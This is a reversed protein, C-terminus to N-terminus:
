LWPGLNISQWFHLSIFRAPDLGLYMDQFSTLGPNSDLLTGISEYMEVMEQHTAGKSPAMEVERLAAKIDAVTFVPEPGTPRSM